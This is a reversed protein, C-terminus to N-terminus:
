QRSRGTNQRDMSEKRTLLVELSHWNHSLEPTALAESCVYSVTVVHDALRHDPGGGSRQRGTLPGTVQTTM